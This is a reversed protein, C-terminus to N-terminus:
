QLRRGYASRLSARDRLVSLCPLPLCCRWFREWAHSVPKTLFDLLALRVSSPRFCHSLLLTDSDLMAVDTADIVEGEVLGLSGSRGAINPGICRVLQGDTDYVLVRGKRTRQAADVIYVHGRSDHSPGTLM